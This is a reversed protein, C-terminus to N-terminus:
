RFVPDLPIPIEQRRTSHVTRPFHFPHHTIIAVPNPTQAKQTLKRHSNETHAKQKLSIRLSHIHYKSSVVTPVATHSLAKRAAATQAQTCGHALASFAGPSFKHMCISLCDCQAQNCGAILGLLSLLRSPLKTSEKHGHM